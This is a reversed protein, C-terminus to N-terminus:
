PLRRAVADKWVNLHARRVDIPVLNQVFQGLERGYGLGIRIGRHRRRLKMALKGM